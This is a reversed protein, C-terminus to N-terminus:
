QTIEKPDAVISRTKEIKVEFELSASQQDTVMTFRRQKPSLSFKKIVDALSVKGLYSNPLMYNYEYLFIHTAPDPNVFERHLRELASIEESELTLKDDVKLRESEWRPDKRNLGYAWYLREDGILETGKALQVKVLRFSVQERVERFLAELPGTKKSDAQPDYNVELFAARKLEAIWERRRKLRKEAFMRNRIRGSVKDITVVEGPREEVIKIVHYGARTRVMDSVKGVPLSFLIKEFEPFVEGRKIFGLDGGRSAAPGESFEKAVEKFQSGNRAVAALAKKAKQRQEEDLEKDAKEDVPFFIQRVRRAEGKRFQDINAQYYSAIEDESVSIRFMVERGETKRALITERVNARFSEPTLGQNVLHRNLEDVQINNKKLVVGVASELEKPSVEIKLAKARQLILKREILLDLGKLEIDRIRSALESGSFKARIKRIEGKAFDQLESLTVIDDNIKAVIREITVARADAFLVGGLFPILCVVLFSARRWM